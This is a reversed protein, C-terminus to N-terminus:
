VVTCKCKKILSFNFFGIVDEIKRENLLALARNYLEAANEVPTEEPLNEPPTTSEPTTQTPTTANETNQQIHGLFDTIDCSTLVTPAALAICLVIAITKKM